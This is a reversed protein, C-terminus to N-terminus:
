PHRSPHHLRERLGVGVVVFCRSVQSGDSLGIKTSIVASAVNLPRRKRRPEATQGPRQRLRSRAAYRPPM